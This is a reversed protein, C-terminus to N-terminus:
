GRITKPSLDPVDFNSDAPFGDSSAEPTTSTAAVETAPNPHPPSSRADSAASAVPALTESAKPLESATPPNPASADASDGALNKAPMRLAQLVPCSAGPSSLHQEPLGEAATLIHADAHFLHYQVFAADNLLTQLHGPSFQVKSAAMNADAAQAQSISISKIPCIYSSGGLEVRGYEVMIDARVLPDTPKLDAQATVRLVTGNAPDVAIEGHYGAIQQFPRFDSVNAGVGQVFCCYSVEYHSKESPVAYDFVAVPGASSQEWHGWALKSHAADLLTTALIPGFEGSTSLGQVPGGKKGKELTANVVEGGDRYFVTASASGSRALPQAPVFSSGGKEYGQPQDQFRTTIRTASFNPLQHVTRSVYGVTLGMIRRQEEHAPAPTPPIEAPPLPLFAASDAILNLAEQTEPGTFDSKWRSLTAPGPRQTLEIDILHRATEADPKGHFAAVTQDLQDVTVRKAASAPLVIAALLVLLACRRM